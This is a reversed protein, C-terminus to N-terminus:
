FNMFPYFTKQLKNQIYEVILPQLTYKDGTKEILSRSYLNEISQFFDSISIPTLETILYNITGPQKHIAFYYMIQQELRSISNLQQELLTNIQQSVLLTKQALFTEIDSNFLDMITHSVIQITLPNNSYLDCLQYKQQETGLLQQSQLLSFAIESSGALKLCRVSLSSNELLKVQPPKLRSTFIVCSQHGTEAIIRFFNNYQTDGADLITELQDLIILCRYTRFYHILRNIDPKTEKNHSLFSLIDMIMHHFKPNTPVSRWFVYDFQNQIQQALQTVLTTKGVGGIGVVPVLRCNDQIIWSELQTLEEGRGYFM